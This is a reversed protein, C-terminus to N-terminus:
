KKKLIKIIASAFKDFGKAANLKGSFIIIKNKKIFKNIRDISPYITKFNTYFNKDIGNFFKEEVWSSVFYIKYCLNLLVKRESVSTSGKLNLPDNHIVLIFNTNNYQKSISLLYSPRNHIEVVSPKELNCYKILKDTYFDSKSTFKIKPIKINLYNKKIFVNETKDTSGFIRLIKKFRSKKFFDKVWISASGAYNKIFQDKHPLIIFIKKNM